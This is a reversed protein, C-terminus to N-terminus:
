RAELAATAAVLRGMEIWQAGTGAVPQVLLRVQGWSNKADVVTCDITLSEFRVRVSAGVAPTLERCTRQTTANTM